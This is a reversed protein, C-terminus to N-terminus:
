MVSKILRDFLRDSLLRHILLIVVAMSGATYRTKPRRSKLARIITKGIVGPGSFRNGAYLLAMREASKVARERYAGSGSAKRLNESAIAGWGTAVGGPEIIIADIGFDSVELRLADTLGELAHKTAHYWAGFPTHIKGGISSINVIKGYHNKRMDPLVLQTLRALGFINVEFQRRAEDLPVDELAGFSGYGANNVLIDVSLGSGRINEVAATVSADDTVDLRIIKAGRSELDKMNEVGRAAAFVTVGEGLLLEVTAKGIGSSAGTVLATRGKIRNLSNM